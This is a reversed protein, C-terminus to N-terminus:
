PSRSQLSVCFDYLGAEKAGNTHRLKVWLRDSLIVTRCLYIKGEYKITFNHLGVGHNQSSSGDAYLVKGNLLIGEAKQGRIEEAGAQTAFTLILATLITRM